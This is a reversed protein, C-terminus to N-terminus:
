PRWCCATAGTAPRGCWGRSRARASRRCTTRPRPRPARDGGPDARARHDRAAGDYAARLLELVGGATVATDFGREEVTAGVVLRGDARPVAYVEPTRVIRTALPGAFGGGLRLIQGKVPRVPLERARRCASRPATPARRSCSWAHRCSSARSSRARGGDRRRRSRAIGRPRAPAAHRRRARARDPARDALRRPSVQHDGPAEIGGAVRTSLAPELERCERAACGSARRARALAPARAPAALEEAQDRDVAVNLAGSAPLGDRPGDAAELEAVFGPYRRAAALNLELLAEEGFDAETVPALMGAAVGTAGGAPEGRRSCSRACAASRRARWAIALGIVGAGIM